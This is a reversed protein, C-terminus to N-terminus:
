TQQIVEDETNKKEELLLNNLYNYKLNQNNVKSSLISARHINKNANNKNSYTLSNRKPNLISLIEKNNDISIYNMEKLMKKKMEM